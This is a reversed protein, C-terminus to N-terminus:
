TKLDTDHRPIIIYFNDLGPRNVLGAVCPAHYIVLFPADVDLVDVPDLVQRGEEVLYVMDELKHVIEFEAVFRNIEQRGEHCMEENVIAQDVQHM